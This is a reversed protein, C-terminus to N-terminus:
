AEQHEMTLERLATQGPRRQIGITNFSDAERALGGTTGDFPDDM